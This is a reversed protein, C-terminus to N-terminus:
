SRCRPSRRWEENTLEASRQLNLQRLAKLLKLKPLGENTVATNRLTLSKLKSLGALSDLTADDVDAGWLVLTELSGLKGIEAVDAPLTPRNELDIAIIEGAPNKQIKAQLEVLRDEVGAALAPTALALLVFLTGWRSATRFSASFLRCSAFRTVDITEWATPIDPRGGHPMQPFADVLWQRFM